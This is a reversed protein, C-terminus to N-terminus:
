PAIHNVEQRHCYLPSIRRCHCSSVHWVLNKMQKHTIVNIIDGSPQEILLPAWKDQLDKNPLYCHLKM